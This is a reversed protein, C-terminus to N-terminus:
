NKDTVSFFWLPAGGEEKPPVGSLISFVVSSWVKEGDCSKAGEREWGGSRRGALQREKETKRHTAPRAISVPPHSLPM